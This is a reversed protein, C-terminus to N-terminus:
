PKEKLPTWLDDTSVGFFTAIKRANSLKPDGGQEIFFLATASLGVTRAVDVLSLRLDIRIEKGQYVWSIKRPKQNSNVRVGPGRGRRKKQALKQASMAEAATTM